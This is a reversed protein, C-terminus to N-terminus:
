GFRAMAVREEEDQETQADVIDEMQIIAYQLREATSHCNHLWFHRGEMDDKRLVFRLAWFSFAEPDLPPLGFGTQVLVSGLDSGHFSLICEVLNLIYQRTAFFKMSNSSAAGQHDV